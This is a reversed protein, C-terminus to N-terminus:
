GRGPASYMTMGHIEPFALLQLGLRVTAFAVRTERWYKGGLQARLRAGPEDWGHITVNGGAPLSIM